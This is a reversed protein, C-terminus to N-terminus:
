GDRFLELGKRLFAIMERCNEMGDDGGRKESENRRAELRGLTKEMAKVLSDFSMLKPAKQPKEPKKGVVRCIGNPDDSIALTLDIIGGEAAGPIDKSYLYIERRGDDPVVAAVGGTIRDIVGRVQEIKM